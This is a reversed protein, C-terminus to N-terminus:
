MRFFSNIQRCNHSDSTDGYDHSDDHEVEMISSRDPFLHGIPDFIEQKFSDDLM